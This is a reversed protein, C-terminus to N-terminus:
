YFPAKSGKEVALFFFTGAGSGLPKPHLQWLLVVDSDSSNLIVMAVLTESAMELFSVTNPSSDDCWIFLPLTTAAGPVM